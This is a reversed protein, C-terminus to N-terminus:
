EALLSSRWVFSCGTFWSVRLARGEQILLLLVRLFFEFTDKTVVLM